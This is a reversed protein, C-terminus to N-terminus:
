PRMPTMAGIAELRESFAQAIVPSAAWVVNGERGSVSLPPTTVVAGAEAAILSGAAYDWCNIGHEYYADVRGEALSCFDLAASGERRIDRIEPLLQVLIKVQEARRTATYGFGTAVLSRALDAPEHCRLRVTTTPTTKYAGGQEIAHYVADSTVDVVVGAIVEGDCAAAISVAYHPIGYLFNVTGDIPDIIWSIGSRSPRETGEEGIIGDHPRLKELEGCIYEEALTDVVTVPDVLSSKTESHQHIDGLEDRRTRIKQAAGRAIDVAIDRLQEASNEM